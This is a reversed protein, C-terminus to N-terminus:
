YGSRKLKRRGEELQQRADQLHKRAGDLASRAVVPPDAALPEEARSVGSVRLLQEVALALSEVMRGTGYVGDLFGLAHQAGAGTRLARSALLRATVYTCGRAYQEPSSTTAQVVGHVGSAYGSRVDADDTPDGLTEMESEVIFLLAGLMQGRNPAEPNDATVRFGLTDLAAGLQEIPIDGAPTRTM